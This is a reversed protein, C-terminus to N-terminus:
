IKVNDKIHSVLDVILSVLAQQNSGQCVWFILIVLINHPDDLVPCKVFRVQMSPAEIVM